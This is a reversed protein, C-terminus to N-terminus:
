LCWYITKLLKDLVYLTVMSVLWVPPLWHMSLLCFSSYILLEGFYNPNRSFSWLRTTLIRPYTGEPANLKTMSQRYALFETKQMDVTNWRAHQCVHVAYYRICFALIRGHWVYVHVFRWYHMTLIFYSTAHDKGCLWAPARVQGEIIIFIPIWYLMLRDVILM